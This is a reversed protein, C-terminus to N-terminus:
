ELYIIMNKTEENFWFFLFFNKRKKFSFSYVPHKIVKTFHATLEFRKHFNKGYKIQNVQLAHDICDNRDARWMGSLNMAKVIHIESYM